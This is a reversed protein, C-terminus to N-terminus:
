IPNFLKQQLLALKRRAGKEVEGEFCISRLYHRPLNQCIAYSTKKWPLHLYITIPNKLCQYILRKEKTLLHNYDICAHIPTKVFGDKLTRLYIWFASLPEGPSNEICIARLHKPTNINDFIRSYSEVSRKLWNKFRSRDNLFRHDYGTHVILFESSLRETVKLVQTIREISVQRIKEDLSGLNLDIAPAHISFSLRGGSIEQYAEIWITLDKPSDLLAPLMFDRLELGLGLEILEDVMSPLLTPDAHQIRFFNKSLNM